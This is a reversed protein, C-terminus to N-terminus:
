DVSEEKISKILQRAEDVNVSCEISDQCPGDHKSLFDHQRVIRELASNLRFIVQEQKAILIQTRMSYNHFSIACGVGGVAVLIAIAISGDTV